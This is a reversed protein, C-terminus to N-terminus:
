IYRAIWFAPFSSGTLSNLPGGSTQYAVLEFYDTTLFTEAMGHCNVADSNGNSPAQRCIISTLIVGNLSVRCDRANGAAATPNYVIQGGILFKGVVGPTIRTNNVATDHIGSPDWVDTNFLVATAVGNPISQNANHQVRATQYRNLIKRISTRNKLALDDRTRIPM